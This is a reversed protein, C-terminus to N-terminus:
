WCIYSFVCVLLGHATFTLQDACSHLCKVM